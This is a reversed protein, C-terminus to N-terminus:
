PAGTPPGDGRLFLDKARVQAAPKGVKARGVPTRKGEEWIGHGEAYHCIRSMIARVGHM